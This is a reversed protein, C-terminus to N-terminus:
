RAGTVSATGDFAIEAYEYYLNDEADSSEGHYQGDLSDFLILSAKPTVGTNRKDASVRLDITAMNANILIGDSVNEREDAIVLTKSDSLDKLAERERMEYEEDIDILHIM